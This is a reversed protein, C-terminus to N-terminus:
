SAREDYGTRRIWYLAAGILVVAVGALVSSVPLSFALVVCGVLGAVPIVKGRLSMASANAIAYYLLVAFSSFGIAGRVDVVAALVSVVV